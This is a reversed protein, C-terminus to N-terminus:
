TFLSKMLWSLPCHLLTIINTSWKFVLSTHYPDYKQCVCSEGHSSAYGRPVSIHYSLQGPTEHWGKCLSNPKCCLTCVKTHYYASHPIPCHSHCHHPRPYNPDQLLDHQSWGHYHLAINGSHSSAHPSLQKCCLSSYSWNIANTAWLDHCGMSIKLEPCLQSFPLTVWRIESGSTCLQWPGHCHLKAKNQWM